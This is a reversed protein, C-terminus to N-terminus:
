GETPGEGNSPADLAALRELAISRWTYIEGLHDHIAYLRDAVLDFLDAIDLPKLSNEAQADL